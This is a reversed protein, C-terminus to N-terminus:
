ISSYMDFMPLYVALLLIVTVVALVITIIPELLSVLRETAISVENSYYDSIVSLTEELNGSREGVGTMESLMKPFCKNTSMCEAMSRGQEVGQRVSRIATAVAFNTMVNSTVELARVIPLGATLMTAMTSAFQSAANMIHLRHLPSNFIKWEAQKLRGSETQRMLIRILFILVIIGLIIMWYNTFADSFAILGKTIAPLETGLEKFTATFMPVAVFMIIMFVIIAVVVVLAPYTLSSIIKARTKASKDYYKHLREFCLELTGAQEGARVTEIFTVPLKPCNNEFSQALSYGGSVDDSVKELMQQLEKNKAQAAVMKVCHDISLGSNLIISFQSCIISLEKEKIKLGGGIGKSKVEKVEEIKTIIACNESERVRSAAEFENYAQVVGSVKVGNESLGRYKYTNM